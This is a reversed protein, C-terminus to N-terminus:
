SGTVIFTIILLAALSICIKQNITAFAERLRRAFWFVFPLVEQNLTCILTRVLMGINRKFQATSPLLFHFFDYPM